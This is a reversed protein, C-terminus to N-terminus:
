KQSKKVSQYIDDLKIKQELKESAAEDFEKVIYYINLRTLLMIAKVFKGFSILSIAVFLMLIVQYNPFTKPVFMCLLVVFFSEILGVIIIFFLHKDIREKLLEKSFKSVLTAIIVWVTTYIGIIIAFFSIFNAVREDTVYSSITSRVPSFVESNGMGFILLMDFVFIIIELKVNNKVLPLLRMGDDFRRNLGSKKFTM